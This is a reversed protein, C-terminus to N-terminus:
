RILGFYGVYWDQRSTNDSGCFGSIATTSTIRAGSQVPYDITSLYRGCSVDACGSASSLANDLNFQPSGQGLDSLSSLGGDSNLAATGSMSFEAWARATFYAAGGSTAEQITNVKLTSM